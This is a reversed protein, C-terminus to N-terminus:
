LSRFGPLRSTVLFQSRRMVSKTSYKCSFMCFMSDSSTKIKDDNAYHALQELESCHTSAISDEYCAASSPAACLTLVASVAVATCCEASIACANNCLM